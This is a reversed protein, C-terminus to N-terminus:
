KEIGARAAVGQRYYHKVAKMETVLDAAAIIEAPANRGTIVVEVHAPRKAILDLLASAPFLGVAAAVNAEELVVM